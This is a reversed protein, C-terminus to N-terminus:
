SNKRVHALAVDRAKQWGATDRQVPWSWSAGLEAQLAALLGRVDLFFGPAQGQLGDLLAAPSTPVQGGNSGQQAGAPKDGRPFWANLDEPDEAVPPLEPLAGADGSTDAPAPPQEDPSPEGGAAGAQAALRVQVDAVWLAAMEGADKPHRERKLKDYANRAHQLVDFAGQELGWAIATEANPFTAPTAQELKDQEAQSLGDYVAAEIREPMGAWTGSDDWLTMGARGRRAWTVKVGRRQGDQVLELQLNISRTLRALETTSITARQLAKGREDRADQLHYIWLVDTGWRTVADQLQRMALAKTKFAAALNKERGADKDVMAQVVLPTIIATLSDVIITGVQAGPMNRALQAAVRDADTNDAAEGSLEYVDGAALHLVEQFRHDADIALLPCRMQTAFSSKGSGPYGVLGWLRPPYLDKVMKKFAM